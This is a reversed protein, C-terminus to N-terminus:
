DEINFNITSVVRVTKYRSSREQYANDSDRPLIQFVGQYANRIGGISAGSDAAFQEASERASRTAEAIMEPKIDNLGTFIYDVPSQNQEVILSVDQELLDGSNQYAADVANVNGSRIAIIESIIYRSDTAGNQRYAQALLDTVELRRGAIDKESLNNNRLFNRIKLGNNKITAQVASLDNGTATHKITWIALDAEVDKQALGKMNVSRDAARFEKMGGAIMFGAFCISLALLILGITLGKDVSRNTNHSIEM